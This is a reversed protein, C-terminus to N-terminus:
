EIESINKVLTGALDKVAPAEGEFVLPVTAEIEEELSPQYFDVHILKGTLPDLQVEHVLVQAKKGNIKLL